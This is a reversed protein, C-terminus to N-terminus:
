ADNGGVMRRLFAARRDCAEARAAWRALEDGDERGAEVIKRAAQAQREVEAAWEAFDPLASKQMEAMAQADEM